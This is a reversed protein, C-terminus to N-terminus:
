ITPISKLGSAIRGLDIGYNSLKEHDIKVLIEFQTEINSELTDDALIKEFKRKFIGILSNLNLTIIGTKDLLFLDQDELSSHAAIAIREKPFFSHSMGHRCIFILFEIHEPNTIEDKVFLTINEKTKKPVKETGILYGLIDIASFVALAHPITSRFYHSHMGYLSGHGSTGYLFQPKTTQITTTPSYGATKSASIYPEPSTSPSSERQEIETCIRRFTDLDGYLYTKLSKLFIHADHNM